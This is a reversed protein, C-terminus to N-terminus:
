KNRNRFKLGRSENKIYEDKFMEKFYDIVDFTFYEQVNFIINDLEDNSINQELDPFSDNILIKLAEKSLTEEIETM